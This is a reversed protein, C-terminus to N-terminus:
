LRTLQPSKTPGDECKLLEGFQVAMNPMSSARKRPRPSGIESSAQPADAEAAKVDVPMPASSVSEIGCVEERTPKLVQLLAMNPM